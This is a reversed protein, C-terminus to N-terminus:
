AIFNLMGTPYLASASLSDQASICVNKLSIKPFYPAFSIKPVKPENELDRQSIPAIPIIRGASNAQEVGWARCPVPLGPIRGGQGPEGLQTELWAPSARRRTSGIWNVPSPADAHDRSRLTISPIFPLRM